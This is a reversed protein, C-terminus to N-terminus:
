NADKMLLQVFRDLFVVFTPLVLDVQSFDMSTSLCVLVFKPFIDRYLITEFLKSFNCLISIPRYNEILSSDGKKFVPCVRATKWMEPFAGTQIILNFIHSLPLSLVQACDKVVFSPIGDPGATMKNKLSRSASFVDNTTINPCIHVYDSGCSMYPNQQSERYLNKFFRAFASVIEQPGEYSGLSDKMSAPIRSTGKKGHILSWFMSPDSNINEEAHKIHDRYALDV